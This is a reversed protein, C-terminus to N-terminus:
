RSKHIAETAKHVDEKRVLIEYTTPSYSEIPIGSRGRGRGMLVSGGTKIKMKIGSDLLRGRISSFEQLNSTMYITEWGFFMGMIKELM